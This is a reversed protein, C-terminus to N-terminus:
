GEVWSLAHGCPRTMTNVGEMWSKRSSARRAAVVTTPSPTVPRVRTGDAAGGGDVDSRGRVQRARCSQTGAANRWQGAPGDFRALLRPDATVTVTRSAGPALEVREFGLLRMRKSVPADTLYVQPMDAGAVTGTNTVTFM